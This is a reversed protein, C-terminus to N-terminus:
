LNKYFFMKKKEFYLFNFLNSFKIRQSFNFPSIKNKYEKYKFHFFDKLNFSIKKVINKNWKAGTLSSILLGNKKLSKKYIYFLYFISNECCGYSKLNTDIIIDFFNKKVKKYFNLSYKNTLIKKYNQLNLNNAKEFENKSITVGMIFNNKSMKKAIESNGIGIHLIKKNCIKKKLLYNLITKEDSTQKRKEWYKIKTDFYNKKKCTCETFKIM